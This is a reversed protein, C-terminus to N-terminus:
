PKELQMDENNGVDEYPGNGQLHELQDYAEYCDDLNLGQYINEEEKQVKRKELENLDKSKVLLAASPLIVCLLLLIGETILIVNKDSESLKITKELPMYVQLYTGHTYVYVHNPGTKILCRYYGTDNLATSQIHLIGRYQGGGLDNTKNVADGLSDYLINKKASERSQKIWILEIKGTTNFCCELRVSYAVKVKLSPIDAELTIESQVCLVLCCCM